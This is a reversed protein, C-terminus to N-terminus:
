HIIVPHSPSAKMFCTASADIPKNATANVEHVLFIPEWGTVPTKEHETLFPSVRWVHVSNLFREGFSTAYKLCFHSLSLEISAALQTSAGQTFSARCPPQERENLSVALL